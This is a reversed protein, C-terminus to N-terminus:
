RRCPQSRSRCPIQQRRSHQSLRYAMYRLLQPSHSATARCSSHPQRLNQRPIPSSDPNEPPSAPPPMRRHPPVGMLPCARWCTASSQTVALPRKSPETFFSIFGTCLSHPGVYRRSPRHLGDHHDLRSGGTSCPERRWPSQCVTLQDRRHIATNCWRNASPALTPRHSSGARQRTRM